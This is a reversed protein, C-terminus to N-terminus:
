KLVFEAKFGPVKDIFDSFERKLQAHKQEWERKQEAMALLEQQSKETEAVQSDYKEQLTSYEKDCEEKMVTLKGQFEATLEQRQKELARDREEELTAQQSYLAQDKELLAREREAMKEEAVMGRVREAEREAREREEAKAQQVEADRIAGAEVWTIEVKDKLQKEDEAAVKKLKTAFEDRLKAELIGCHKAIARLQTQHADVFLQQRERAWQERAAEVAKERREAEERRVVEETSRIARQRDAEAEAAHRERLGEGM